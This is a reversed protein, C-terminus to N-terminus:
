SLVVNQTHKRLFFYRYSLMLFLTLVYFSNYLLWVEILDDGYITNEFTFTMVTIAWRLVDGGLFLSPLWSTKFLFGFRSVIGVTLGLVLVILFFVVIWSLMIKQEFLIALNESYATYLLLGVAALLVFEIIPKIAFLGGLLSIVDKRFAIIIIFGVILPGAFLLL